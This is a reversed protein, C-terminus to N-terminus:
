RGREETEALVDRMWEGTADALRELVQDDDLGTRRPVRFSHDAHEIVHLSARPGLRECVPRMREIQGPRRSIFTQMPMKAVDDSLVNICRFAAAVTKSREATVMQGSSSTLGFSEVLQPLTMVEAPTQNRISHVFREIIM